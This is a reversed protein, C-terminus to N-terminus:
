IYTACRPMLKLKGTATHQLTNCHTATHERVEADLQAQVLADDAELRERQADELARDRELMAKENDEEAAQMVM